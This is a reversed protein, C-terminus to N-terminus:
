LDFPFRVARFVSVFKPVLGRSNVEAVIDALEECQNSSATDWLPHTLVIGERTIADFGVYTSEIREHPLEFAGFWPPAQADLHDRWYEVDFNIPANQDLSLRAMDFALRWDLITHYAMNGFERLCRHCSTACEGRHDGAVFPNHFSGQDQEYTGLIRNLLGEYEEPHGLLSSYGAGNELADSLFIRASPPEFPITFDRFPQLGMELEAENIDLRVAAARRIMFGFSYWAAKAEDISPNLNLGPPIVALGATMVDTTSISALSRRLPQAAPDPVPRSQEALRRKESDLQLLAQDVAQETYYIEQGLWKQFEFENGNNDNIKHVATQTMEDIVFNRVTVPSRQAASIRARLARPTFEFTGDFEAQWHRSRLEATPTCFGPPEVIQAISYGDQPNMAAACYPCPGQVPNVTVLGQCRRCIGVSRPNRLPDPEQRMANGMPVYEVIGVATHLLDDKVTQAGPAFQSIAIDLDRDITGGRRQPHPRRHYLLRVRTPFGFMPLVGRSACTESLSDDINAFRQVIASDIHNCLQTKIYNSLQNVGNINDFATRRLIARCIDDVDGSHLAIWASTQARTASNWEAITGFEGHVDDPTSSCVVNRFVRRLVEKSIVRRAIEERTVDVYPPPPSDYTIHRPREFYYEDHSRGRCLTLAVSLSHGRRGARGVRQQYNFRVPPMNALALAQLSGIDVGAEMTTTVSLLDVPSALEVENEMIVDQFLRQRTRRDDPDTQGILEACNMRFVPQDCRALYEYFDEPEGLLAIQLPIRSLITNCRTCVEAAAHLHTRRCRPCEWMQIDGNADPRPTLLFLARPQVLWDTMVPALVSAVQSVFQDRDEGAADAVTDLYMRVARPPSTKGEKDADVRRRLKGVLIRITAAAAEERLNNPPTNRIWLFGLKLSEFDRSGAAFLVQDVLGKLLSEELRQIHDNEQVSRQLVSKYTPPNSTWDVVTDWKAWENVNFFRGLTETPGGPNMGIELLRSRVANRLPDFGISTWPPPPAPAQLCAPLAGGTSCTMIAVIDHPPLLTLLQQYRELDPGSLPSTIIQRQLRLLELGLERIREHEAFNMNISQELAALQHYSIQRITDYYHSVKIGTSLKAADQRSDSFLVLKKRQSQNMERVMGDCLLQVIRQFGSGLDRIPSATRLGSWNEGCHPCRSPFAEANADAPATFLYGNTKGPGPTRAPWSLRGFQHSIEASAWQYGLITQEQWTWRDNNNTRYLARGVAPWFVAYDEHSRKLSTSRDPIQDLHPYDPSLYFVNSEEERTKKFGGIFIEGCPQCYLLELVRAGCNSCRPMPQTFLRGVPPLDDGVRSCGTCDPNICVWLRGANHFFSHMRLPLPAVYSGRQEKEALVVARILGEAADTSNTADPFLSRAIDRATAPPLLANKLPEYARMTSLCEHIVVGPRIHSPVNLTQALNTAAHLPEGISADLDIKFQVMSQGFRSLDTGSTPFSERNGPVIEFSTGDRGFFQELYRESTANREISASTALIRLQPSEPHLGIRDLFTRLLYGVETGATGRYSHLEDVVLHFVNRPNTLWDQTLTFIDDEVNRMLMINLMSYNTILIDPPSDHMDWRSWMESSGPEQFFPLIHPGRVAASQLARNWEEEMRVLRDKLKQVKTPDSSVGPVPTDGNYRGFWFRHGGRHQTLWNRAQGGDCAQRIRGVQDEILANLPYLFLARLAAPRIGHEHERQSQRRLGTRNWWWNTNQQPCPTTWQLSEEVLSAFVPALYCETKGSGTGSTIIVPRGSRSLNWSDKQHTYLPIHNGNQDPPFLNQVLFEGTEQPAGIEQAVEIASQNSSVYPAVAEFLPERYLQRDQDLLSQRESMLANYRLRFPSNLYRVYSNRLSNFLRFPDRM